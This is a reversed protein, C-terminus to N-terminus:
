RAAAAAVLLLGGLIGLGIWGSLQPSDPKGNKAYETHHDCNFESVDYKQGLCQKARYVVAPAVQDSPTWEVHVRLGQSFASFSEEVVRGLSKSNHTILVHPWTSTVVGKHWYLGLWISIISGLKM